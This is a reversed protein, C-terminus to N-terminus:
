NEGYGFFAVLFYHVCVAIFDYHRDVHRLRIWVLLLEVIQIKVHVSDYTEKTTVLAAGSGKANTGLNMWTSVRLAFYSM